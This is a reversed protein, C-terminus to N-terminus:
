IVDSFYSEFPRSPMIDVGFWLWGYTNRDIYRDISACPSLSLSLLSPPSPSLSLYLSLSLSHSTPPSRFPPPLSLSSLFPPLFPPPPARPPARLCVSPPVCVSVCICVSVSLGFLCVSLSVSLFICSSPVDPNTFMDNMPWSMTLACVVSLCITLYHM